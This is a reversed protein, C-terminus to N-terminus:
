TPTVAPSYIRRALELTAALVPPLWTQENWIMRVAHREGPVGGLVGVEGTEIERHASERPLVAICPGNRLLEIAGQVSAMSMFETRLKYTGEISERFRELASVDSDVYLLRTTIHRIRRHQEKASGDLLGLLERGAVAVLDVSRLDEIHLGAPVDTRRDPPSLIIGMDLRGASVEETIRYSDMGAPALELKPYRYGSEWVLRTLEQDVSLPSAGVSVRGSIERGNALSTSLEDVLGLLRVAYGHFTEGDPTPRVGHYLRQFLSTGVQSELARIHAAATSQSYGLNRGAQTISGTRVVELFTRVQYLAIDM